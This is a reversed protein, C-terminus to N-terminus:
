NNEDEDNVIQIGEYTTNDRGTMQVRRTKVGLKGAFHETANM